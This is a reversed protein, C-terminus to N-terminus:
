QNKRREQLFKDIYNVRINGCTFTLIDSNNDVIKSIYTDHIVNNSTKIKIPVGLKMNQVDHLRSNKNISFTINHSYSNSKFLDIAAQEADEEKEVSNRSVKGYIRNAHNKDETTTRDNLLYRCYKKGNEKILIEAKGIVSLSFTENYSTVDETTADVLLPDLDKRSFIEILLHNNELKFNLNVNYKEICNGLFTLFNYVNNNVSGITSISARIPTSTLAEVMLFKKNLFTDQNTIFEESIRNAIFNEIGVTKIVTENEVFSTFDFMALIDKCTIKYKNSSTSLEQKQVIGFFLLEDSKKLYLFDQEQINLKKSSYFISNGNTELDRNISEINLQIVELIEFSKSDLFYGLIEQTIDKKTQPALVVLDDELEEQLIDNSYYQIKIKHIGPTEPALFNLSYIDTFSDYDLKYEEEDIRIKVYENM